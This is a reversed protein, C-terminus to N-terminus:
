GKKRSEGTQGGVTKGEEIRPPGPGKSQCGLAGKDEPSGGRHEQRQDQCQGSDLCGPDQCTSEVLLRRARVVFPWSHETHYETDGECNFDTHAVRNPNKLRRLPFLLRLSQVHVPAKDIRLIDCWSHIYRYSASSFAATSVKRSTSSLKSHLSASLKSWKRLEPL